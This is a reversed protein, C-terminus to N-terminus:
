PHAGGTQPHRTGEPPSGAGREGSLVWAALDALDALYVSGPSPDPAAGLGPRHTPTAGAQRDRGAPTVRAAVVRRDGPTGSREALGRSELRAVPRIVASDKLGIRDGM